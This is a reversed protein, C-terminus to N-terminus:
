RQGVALGDSLQVETDVGKLLQQPGLDFSIVVPNDTTWGDPDYWPGGGPGIDNPTADLDNFIPDAVGGDVCPSSPQLDPISGSVFLPDGGLSGDDVVGGGAWRSTAVNYHFNNLAKNGFPLQVGWHHGSFINNAVTCETSSDAKVAYGLQGAMEYWGYTDHRTAHMYNNAIFAVNNSRVRVSGRGPYVNAGPGGQAGYRAGVVTSNILVCNSNSGAFDVVDGYTGKGDFACGVLVSKHGNGGFLSAGVSSYGIWNRESYSAVNGGITTRFVVTKGSNDTSDLRGSISARVVTLEGGDQNIASYSGGVVNVISAGNVQLGTGATLDLDKLTITATDAITLGKGPSGVKFGEFPPPDTIATFTVNGTLEVEHGDVEVLRIAKNVTVDDSYTGGFIAVIDGPQALNVNDQITGKSGDSLVPFVAASGLSAGTM